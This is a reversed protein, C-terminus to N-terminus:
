VLRWSDMSQGKSHEGEAEQTNAPDLDDLKGHTESQFSRLADMIKGEKHKDRKLTAAIREEELKKKEYSKTVREVYPQYESNLVGAHSVSEIAIAPEVAELGAGLMLGAKHEFSVREMDGAHGPHADRHRGIAKLVEDYDDRVSKQHKQRIHNSVYNRLRFQPETSTSIGAKSIAEPVSSSHNQRVTRSGTAKCAKSVRGRSQSPM